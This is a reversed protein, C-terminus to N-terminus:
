QQRRWEQLGVKKSSPCVPLARTTLALRVPLMTELFGQLWVKRLVHCWIRKTEDLVVLKRWLGVVVM